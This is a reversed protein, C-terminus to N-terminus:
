SESLLVNIQHIIGNRIGLKGSIVKTLQKVQGNKGRFENWRKLTMEIQKEDVIFDKYKVFVDRPPKGQTLEEFTIEKVYDLYKKVRRKVCHKYREEFLDVVSNLNNLVDFLDCNQGYTKRIRRGQLIMEVRLINEEIEIGKERMQETKNYCKLRYENSILCSLMGTTKIENNEKDIIQWIPTQRIADLYSLQFLKIISSIDTGNIQKTVNVEIANPVIRKIKDGFINNLDILLKTKIYTTADKDYVGYPIVNDDRLMLPINFRLKIEEGHTKVNGYVTGDSNKLNRDIYIRDLTQKNLVITCSVGDIGINLM